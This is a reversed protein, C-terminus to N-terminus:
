SVIQSLRTGLPNYKFFLKKQIQYHLNWFFDKYLIEPFLDYDAIELDLNKSTAQQKHMRFAALKENIYVLSGFKFIRYWYEIDVLQNLKENFYGAKEIMSRRFLVTVPEGIKNIPENMLQDSKLLKKGPIKTSNKFLSQKKQLDEFENIWESSVQTDKEIILDRKCFVLNVKKDTESAQVMREICEPYLVDDQFLFKIYEGKAHKLCNNWNSGITSPQHHFIRVPFNCSKEFEKISELSADKSDDDSVVMEINKYTQSKLSDLAQRLYKEGNRIPLCVSVLAQPQNKM